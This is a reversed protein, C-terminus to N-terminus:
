RVPKPRPPREETAKREFYADVDESRYGKGAADMEAEAADADAVFAQRLEARRIADEITEVMFAHASKGAAQAVAAIREDLEEPIKLSKVKVQPIRLDGVLTISPTNLTLV